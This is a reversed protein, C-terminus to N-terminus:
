GVGHSQPREPPLPLHIALAEAVADVAYEVNRRFSDFFMRDVSPGLHPALDSEVQSQLSATHCHVLEHVVVARRREPELKEFDSGFRLVAYRQGDVPECRAYADDGPEGKVDFRWDRLGVEDAIDRVYRELETM